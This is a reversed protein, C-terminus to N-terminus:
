DYLLFYNSKSISPSFVNVAVVLIKLIISYIMSIFAQKQRCTQTLLTASEASSVNTLQLLCNETNRLLQLLFINAFSDFDEEKTFDAM